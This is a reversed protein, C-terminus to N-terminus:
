NFFVISRLTYLIKKFKYILLITKISQKAQSNGALNKGLFFVEQGNEAFRRGNLENLEAIEKIDAGAVFAKTGSGTFIIGGVDPNDYAEQLVQKIEAITEVNLANLSEPRDISITLIRDSISLALNNFDTM